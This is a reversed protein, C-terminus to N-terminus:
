RGISRASSRRTRLIRTRRAPISQLGPVVSRWASFASQGLGALSAWLANREAWGPALFEGIAILAFLALGGAELVFVKHKSANWINGIASIAIAGGIALIPRHVALLAWFTAFPILAFKVTLFTRM